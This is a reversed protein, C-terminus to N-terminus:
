GMPSAIEILIGNPDRVYSVIQGWPRRVPAAIPVAGASVARDFAAQVDADTFAIEIGAPPLTANNPRFEVPLSSRIFSALAFSLTVGETELEAYEQGEKVESRRKLGFAKEYFTITKLVDDVYAITYAFKM